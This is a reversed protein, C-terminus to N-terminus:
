ELIKFSKAILELDPFLKPDGSEFQYVTYDEVFYISRYPSNSIQTELMEGKVHSGILVDRTAQTQTAKEIVLDVHSKVDNRFSGYKSIHINAGTEPDTLTILNNLVKMRYERPYYFEIKLIESKYISQDTEVVSKQREDGGETYIKKYQRDSSIEPAQTHNVIALVNLYLYSLTGFAFVSAIIERAYSKSPKNKTKKM